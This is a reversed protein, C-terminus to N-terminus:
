AGPNKYMARFDMAGAGFDLRAKFEVGDVEFGNRSETYLGEQGQLYAYVVNDTVGSDGVFYYATSSGSYATDGTPGKLTVGNQLRAEQIITLNRMYPPIIDTVVGPVYAGNVFMEADARIAPPVLLFRPTLNLQAGSSPEAQLAMAQMAQNVSTKGIAAGSGALNGHNSHFIAVGDSMAANALLVAYVLDSETQRAANAMMQPIRAFADLNDQVILQRTLAIIHGYTAIRYSEKGEGLTARTYEGHENVRPMAGPGYLSLETVARFDAVTTKRAWPEFSQPARGYAERLSTYVVAALLNAFDSTTHMGGTRTMGGSLRCEGPMLAREIIQFDSGLGRWRIGNAELCDKAMDVLKLGNAGTSRVLDTPKHHEPLARALLGEVLSRFQTEGADQRGSHVTTVQTEKEREVAADVIRKQAQELPVNDNILQARLKPDSRHADCALNICRIRTREREAGREEIELQRQEDDAAATVAQAQAPEAPKEVVKTEVKEEVAGEAKTKDDADGAAVSAAKKETTAMLGDKEDSSRIQCPHLGTSESRIQAAGDAGIPVLSIEFPEWRTAKMLPVEGKRDSKVWEHVRYGVSVNRLIGAKLDAVIDQVDSRESLRVRARGKQQGKPGLIWAEEVVGIVDRLEVNSHSNLLPAAGSALRSMDIAEDSVVLEEDFEGEDWTRRRVKAGTTWDLEVTRAEENWSKPRVTVEGARTFAPMSAQIIRSM